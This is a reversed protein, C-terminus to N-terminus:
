VSMFGMLVSIVSVPSPPAKSVYKPFTLFIESNEFTKLLKLILKFHSATEAGGGQTFYSKSRFKTILMRDQYYHINFLIFRIM